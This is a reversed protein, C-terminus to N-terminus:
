PLKRLTGARLSKFLGSQIGAVIAGSLMTFIVISTATSFGDRYINQYEALSELRLKELVSAAPLALAMVTASITSGITHGLQRDMELTGSAFASDEELNNM